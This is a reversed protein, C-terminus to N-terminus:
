LFIRLASTRVFMKIYINGPPNHETALTFNTFAVRFCPWIQTWAAHTYTLATLPHSGLIEATANVLKQICWLGHGNIYIRRIFDM